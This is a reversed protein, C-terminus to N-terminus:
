RTVSYLGREQIVRVAAEPVLYDLPRGTAARARLDTSSIELNPVSVEELRWGQQRLDAPAPTGPRNVVVLSAKDRVEDLREWTGLEASVDWGVIVFLEASPYIEALQSVTDATYSPGGRDIELRSAHLGPVGGVAARVLEFRDEAPTVQRAGVKQWPVNAVVLVVRDLKLAHRANVAAVLHGVHIPDFTGGFIGIREGM